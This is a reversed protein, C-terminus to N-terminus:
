SMRNEPNKIVRPLLNENLKSKFNSEHNRITINMVCEYKLINIHLCNWGFLTLKLILMVILMNSIIKSGIVELADIIKM